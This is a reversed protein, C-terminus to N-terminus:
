TEAHAKTASKKAPSLIMNMYQGEMVPERDVVAVDRLAERVRDLVERGREPHATERGRRFRVAVKVKDGDQLLREMTRVKFELDHRGINPRLRVEHLVAGKHHKRSEREKKEQQYKWKGYDLIRCVPPNASPDVEVLDLGLERAMALARQTPTVGQNKGEHDILL